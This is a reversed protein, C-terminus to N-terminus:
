NLLSKIIQPKGSPSDPIYDTKEFTIRLSNETLDNIRNQIKELSNKGLPILDDVIYKIIIEDETKQIIQYQKIDPFYEIIGTFSHVILKKGTPTKIIDTERGVIKELLPYNFKRNEPYKERPLKIALDGLQYRIFPQADNTFCTVLVHGLNGDEVENGQDDVIEVYVHPASLYYFSTDFTCAIMLGEACGYTDMILPNEFAQKFNTKFHEFLKDGLSIITTIKHNLNNKIGYEALQNIASPYGIIFRINKRKLDSYIRKCISEDLSFAEEYQVRFFLDKLKKPLNRQPSIGFQLVKKGFEMGGWQYWHNSIGQLYFANKKTSYSFSQIGSSGSSFNKLLSNKDFENSILHNRPNRLIEKTLVPFMKLNEVPSLSSDYELNKYYPVNKISYKLTKELEREQIRLLENESLSDFSNWQKLTKLYNGGFFIDGLPLVIHKLFDSYM